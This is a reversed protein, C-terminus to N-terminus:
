LGQNRHKKFINSVIRAGTHNQSAFYLYYVVAKNTNRMPMPEPVCEFGAVSRLRERFAAALQDNTTKEELPGFLGETQPYAVQSWSSDGWFADMRAKQDDAVKARDHRLVNMNIDMVPFNLFIEVSKMAGAAAMVSWNLHLGYPDLLCLARGYSEYHCSPFVKEALIRNCDGEYVHVNTHRKAMKRLQEARGGDMDIFHLESFPPQVLLANLPSGSIYNGTNKSIHVGAGAFADIYIHRKISRQKAMITSYAAAYNKLIDLKVETWYGVEDHKVASM